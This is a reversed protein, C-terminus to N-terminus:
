LANRSQDIVDAVVRQQGAVRRVGFRDCRGDAASVRSRRSSSLGLVSSSRPTTLPDGGGASGTILSCVSSFGSAREGAGGLASAGGGRRREFAPARRRLLRWGSAGM